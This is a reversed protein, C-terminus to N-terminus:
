FYGLDALRRKVLEEEESTYGPTLDEKRTM